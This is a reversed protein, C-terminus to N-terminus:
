LSHVHSAEPFRCQLDDKSADSCRTAANFKYVYVRVTERTGLDVISGSPPVHKGKRQLLTCVSSASIAYSPMTLFDAACDSISVKLLM